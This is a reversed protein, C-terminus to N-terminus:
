CCGLSFRYSCAYVSVRNVAFCIDPRTFTLYQLAGVIQRFRTPDSFLPDPLITVKSTSIPTDVPKYSTMGARTLIDLIYKHQRLMLGMVTPQVEIGLFYHVAGLDRLKFKSSLLQILRRLMASNSGTLLIDDVYVLLYFIDAGISLIFLSTDVKSATFGISILFDSLCTYWGRPAQKLDYLSKYLWCVHSPLTSDVFGLPQKMYVEETLVGNLFANHIDLQHIKWNRSVAISFVLKITTHKVVPSFTESYDIGEQQTFGQAMLRTKYREVNDDVRRKIKYVWQCGIVNMSHHFPVLSWTNNSHLAQIEDCMACHWAEYRDADSFTFLECAPSPLVRCNSAVSAAASAALLATKPLRPRLVMPHQRTASQHASPASIPLQQLPYSSLDVCFQLGPPSASPDSSEAASAPSSVASDSPSALASRSFHSGSPPSGTGAFHDNSFCASPSM